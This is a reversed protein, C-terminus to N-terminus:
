FINFFFISHFVLCSTQSCMKPKRYLRFLVYGIFFLFFHIFFFFLRFDMWFFFHFFIHNRKRKLNFLFIGFSICIEKKQKSLIDIKLFFFVCKNREIFWWFRSFLFHVLLSPSMLSSVPSSILWMCHAEIVFIFLGSASNQTFESM